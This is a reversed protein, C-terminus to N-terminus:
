SAAGVQRPQCENLKLRMAELSERQHLLLEKYGYNDSHRIEVRLDNLYSDIVDILTQASQPDLTLTIM